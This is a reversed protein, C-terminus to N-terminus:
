EYEMELCFSFDMSNLNMITGFENILQINMRQINVKRDYIRTDSTLNGIAENAALISGYPYERDNLTIRALINKNLSSKQLMSIFSRPNGNLFEDVVLYLYRPGNLDIFAPSILETLPPIEHTPKRFGLLWGLKSQLSNNLDLDGQPGVEFEVTFTAGKDSNSFVSRGEDTSFIVNTFPIGGTKAINDNIAQTLTDITYQGDPITISAYESAVYPFNFSLNFTNNGLHCSINYFTMPIEANTVKISKVENMREPLSITYNSFYPPTYDDRFRSDINLLKKKIPKQVNTMVMHSGHQTVKPEMFLDKNEFYNSM